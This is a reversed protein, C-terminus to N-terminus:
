LRACCATSCVACDSLLIVHAMILSLRASMMWWSVLIFNLTHQQKLLELQTALTLGKPAHKEKLAYLYPQWLILENLTSCVKSDIFM